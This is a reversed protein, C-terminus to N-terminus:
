SGVAFAGDDTLLYFPPLGPGADLAKFAVPLMGEQSRRLNTSVADTVNGRPFVIRFNKDGDQADIVMAREDLADGDAPPTYKYIGSSVVEVSGGGFAFPVNVENFQLLNFQAQVEQNQLERRVSQRAQWAGIELIQPTISLTVGDENTYGTGSWASDLSETPDDPVTSGVAALYVQGTNAVVIESAQNWV